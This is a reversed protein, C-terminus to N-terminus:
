PLKYRPYWHNQFFPSKEWPHGISPPSSYDGAPYFLTYEHEQFCFSCSYIPLSHFLRNGPILTAIGISIPLMQMHTCDEISITIELSHALFSKSISFWSCSVCFWSCAIKDSTNEVTGNQCFIISRQIELCQHAHKQKLITYVIRYIWTEQDSSEDPPNIMHVSHIGRLTKYM